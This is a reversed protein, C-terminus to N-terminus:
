WGATRDTSVYPSSVPRSPVKTLAYGRDSVLLGASLKGSESKGPKAARGHAGHGAGSDETAGPGSPGAVQGAGFALGFVTAVGLTFAGLKTPTNM